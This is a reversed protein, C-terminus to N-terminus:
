PRGRRQRPGRELRQPLPFVEPLQELGDRLRRPLSLSARPRTGLADSRIVHPPDPRQEGATARDSQPLRAPAVPPTFRM